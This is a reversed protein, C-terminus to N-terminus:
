FFVVYIFFYKFKKKKNRVQLVRALDVSKLDVHAYAPGVARREILTQKLEWLRRRNALEDRHEHPTVSQIHNQPREGSDVFRQSYDNFLSENGHLGAGPGSKWSRPTLEKGAPTWLPGTAKNVSSPPRQSSSSSSRNNPEVKVNYKSFSGVPRAQGTAAAATTSTTEGGNQAGNAGGQEAVPSSSAAPGNAGSEVRKQQRLKLKEVISRRLELQRRLESTSDPEDM